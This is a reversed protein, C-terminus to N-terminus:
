RDCSHNRTSQLIDSDIRDRNKALKRFTYISRVDSVQKAFVM